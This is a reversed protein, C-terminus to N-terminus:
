ALNLSPNLNPNLEVQFYDRCHTHFMDGWSLPGKFCSGVIEDPFDGHLNYKAWLAHPDWIAYHLM